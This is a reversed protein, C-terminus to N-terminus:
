SYTYVLALLGSSSGQPFSSSSCAVSKMTVSLSSSTTKFANACHVRENCAVEIAQYKCNTHKLVVTQVGLFVLETIRCDAIRRVSLCAGEVPDSIRYPSIYIVMENKSYLTTKINM